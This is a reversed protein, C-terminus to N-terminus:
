LVRSTIAQYLSGVTSTERGQTGSSDEVEAEPKESRV